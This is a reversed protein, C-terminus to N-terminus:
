SDSILQNAQNNDESDAGVDRHEETWITRYILTDTRITLILVESVVVM